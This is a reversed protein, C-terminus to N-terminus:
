PCIRRDFNTLCDIRLMGINSLWHFDCLKKNRRWAFLLLAASLLVAVGLWRLTCHLM